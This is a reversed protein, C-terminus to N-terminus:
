GGREGRVGGVGGGKDGLICEGLGDWEFGGRGM